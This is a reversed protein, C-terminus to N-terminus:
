RVRLHKGVTYETGPVTRGGKVAEYIRENSPIHQEPIIDIFEAPVDDKNTIKVAGRSNKQITMTGLPTTIKDKKILELNSKYYDKLWELRAEATKRLSKFRDEEEKFSKVYSDLTRIIAIGNQAKVEIADNICELTDKFSEIDANEDMMAEILQQHSEALKYLQM